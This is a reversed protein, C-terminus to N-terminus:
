QSKWSLTITAEDQHDDEDITAPNIYCKDSRLFNHIVMIAMVITTAKNPGVLMANRLVRFKQGIIGLVNESRM